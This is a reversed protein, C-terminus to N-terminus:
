ASFAILGEKYIEIAIKKDYFGGVKVYKKEGTKTTETEKYHEFFYKLKSKTGDSLDNIDNYEKSEIDIDDSPVCILKDDQGKNDKTKLVGIIKCKIFCTPTLRERCLVIVDLPDGDGGLTNPIEGYNFWYPFNHLVRDVRLKGNHIEYKVRSDLPIEIQVDVENM